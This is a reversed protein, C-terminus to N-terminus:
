IGNAHEILKRADDSMGIAQAISVIEVLIGDTRHAMIKKEFEKMKKILKKESAGRKSSLHVGGKVNAVYQIMERRNVHIGEAIGSLSEMYETIYFEREGPYGDKRISPAPKGMPITTGPYAIPSAMFVGRFHAGWALSCIVLDINLEEFLIGLDVAIVSPQKEFGAARWAQGYSSEVLLRRLVASGRRIDPDTVGPGWGDRLYELDEAICKIQEDSTGNM